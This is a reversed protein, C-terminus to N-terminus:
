QKPVHKTLIYDGSQHVLPGLQNVFSCNKINDMRYDIRYKDGAYQQSYYLETAQQRIDNMTANEISVGYIEKFREYWPIMFFPEHIIAQYQITQNRKAECAFSTNQPSCLVVADIPLNHEIWEHMLTLDTKQYNGIHYRSQLKEFPLYKGNLITIFLVLSIILLTPAQWAKLLTPAQWAKWTFNNGTGKLKEVLFTSIAICAFLNPWMSNKFWQMKCIARVGLVDIGLWYFFMGILVITSFRYIFIRNEFTAFRSTIFGFLILSGLKVYDQWPFLSPIFHLHNRFSFIIEHYFEKDFFPQLGFQRYFVPVLMFSAPLLYLLTAPIITKLNRNAKDMLLILWLIGFVQLAALPQFFTGIGILFFSLNYKKELFLWIGALSFPVTLTGPILSTDQLVNGGVVFSHFIFFVLISSLLAALTINTLKLAIRIVLYVDIIVASLTLLFALISLPILSSLGYVFYVFYHRVTFVKNYEQMFFDTPYLSPNHLQYVQPLCEAQDGSNFQYGKYFIFLLGIFLSYLILNYRGLFKM